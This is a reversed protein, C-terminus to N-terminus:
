SSLKLSFTDRLSNLSDDRLHYKGRQCLTSLKINSNTHPLKLPAAFSAVINSLVEISWSELHISSSNNDRRSRSQLELHTGDM